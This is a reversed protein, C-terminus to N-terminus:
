RKIAKTMNAHTSKALNGQFSVLTHTHLANWRYYGCKWNNNKQMIFSAILRGDKLVKSPFYYACKQFSPPKYGGLSFLELSQLSLSAAAIFNVNREPLVSQKRENNM